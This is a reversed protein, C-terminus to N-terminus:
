ERDIHYITIIEYISLFILIKEQGNYDFLKM